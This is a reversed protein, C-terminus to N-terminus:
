YNARLTHVVHRRGIFVRGLAGSRYYVKSATQFSNSINAVQAREIEWEVVSIYHFM